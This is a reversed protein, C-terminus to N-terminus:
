GGDNEWSASDAHDVYIQGTEDVDCLLFDPDLPAEIFEGRLYFLILLLEGVRVKNCFHRRVDQLFSLGSVLFTPYLMLLQRVPQLARARHRSTHSSCDRTRRWPALMIGPVPRHIPCHGTQ